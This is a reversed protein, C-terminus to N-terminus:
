RSEVCIGLTMPPFIHRFIIRWDSGDIAYQTTAGEGLPDSVEVSKITAPLIASADDLQSAEVLGGGTGTVKMSAPTAVELALGLSPYRDPQEVECPSLSALEGDSFELFAQWAVIPTTFEDVWAPHVPGATFVWVRELVKGILWSSEIVLPASKIPM